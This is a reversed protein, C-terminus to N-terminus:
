TQDFAESADQDLCPQKLWVDRDTDTNVPHEPRKTYQFVKCSHTRVQACSSPTHTHTDKSPACDTKNDLFKAFRKM